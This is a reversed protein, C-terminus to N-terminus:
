PIDQESGLAVNIFNLASGKVRPEHSARQANLAVKM